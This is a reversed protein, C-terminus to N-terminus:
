LEGAEVSSSTNKSNPKKTSKVLYLKTVSLLGTDFSSMDLGNVRGERQYEALIM